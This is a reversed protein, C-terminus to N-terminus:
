NIFGFFKCDEKILHEVIVEGVVFEFVDINRMYSEKKQRRILEDAKERLQKHIDEHEKSYKYENKRLVDEEYMFHYDIYSLLDMLKTELAENEEEDQGKAIVKVISNAMDLLKKHQEDIEINGSNWSEQWKVDVFVQESIDNDASVRNRGSNKAKYLARDARKFWADLREDKRREAVGLSITVQGVGVHYINEAEMRIQEALIVASDLTTNTMLIIFEEGGWRVFTDNKRMLRQVRDAINILVKDGMDHGFKDNIDKFKDLDFVLLSIPMNHNEAFTMEEIVKKDFYYRNKIGTLKDNTAINNLINNKDELEKVLIQYREEKRRILEEAKKRDTIDRIVSLIRLESNNYNALVESNVEISFTHGDKHLGQYENTKLIAGKSLSEINEALRIRDEYSIFDLVNKGIIDENEVGFIKKASVSVMGITGNKNILAIADPSISMISDYMTESEKLKNRLSIIIKEKHNLKQNIKSFSRRCIIGLVVLIFLFIIIIYFITYDSNIM